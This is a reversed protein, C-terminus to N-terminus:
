HCHWGQQFCSRSFLKCKKAKLKLGADRLRKMIIKLNKMMERFTRGKVIIDDLYVICIQGILGKLIKQMLKVFTAPANCLGFPM